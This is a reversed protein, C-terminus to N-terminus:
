YLWTRVLNIVDNKYVESVSSKECLGSLKETYRELMEQHHEFREKQLKKEKDESLCYAFAYSYKLVRRCEVLQENADKLFEVDIWRLGESHGSLQAMQAQASERLQDKAYSQGQAHAAFRKFYHLYRDLESKAKATDTRNCDDCSGTAVFRTCGGHGCNVGMCIWCFEFKCQQCVMHNCGQNKEIRVSCKPCSKTNVLIWNATESEDQCKLNWKALDHCSIPAHAEEGCRMCFRMSCKDCCAPTAGQSSRSRSFVAIRECGRGPCWRSDKSREVFSKVQFSRYKSLLEPAAQEVEEETVLETCGPAPCTMGICTPGDRIMVEVFGRWCQRCYEHNCPMSILDAPSLDDQFCILCTLPSGYSKLIGIGNSTSSTEFRQCRASVGAGSRIKEPDSYYVDFLQKKNWKHERMLAIAASPPIELVETVSDVRKKMIPFIDEASLM